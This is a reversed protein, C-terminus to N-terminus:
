PGCRKTGARAGRRERYPRRVRLGRRPSPSRRTGSPAAHEIREVPGVLVQEGIGIRSRGREELDIIRVFEALVDPMHVLDEVVRVAVVVEADHGVDIQVGRLVAIADNELIVACPGEFVEGVSGLLVAYSQGHVPRCADARAAVPGSRPPARSGGTGAPLNM